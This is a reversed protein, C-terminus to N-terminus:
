KAAAAKKTKPAKAKTETKKTTAKKVKTEGKKVAAKVKKVVTNEKKPAVKKTVGTPKSGAKKTAPKRKIAPATDVTQFQRPAAHGTSSRTGERAM